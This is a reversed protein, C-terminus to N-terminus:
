SRDTRAPAAGRGEERECHKWRSRPSLVEIAFPVSHDCLAFEDPNPRIRSPGRVIAVTVQTLGTVIAISGKHEQLTFRM